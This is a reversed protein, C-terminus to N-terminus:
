IDSQVMQSLGNPLDILYRWSGDPQRRAVEISTGTTSVEVGDGSTGRFQWDGVLLATDGAQVVRRTTLRITPNMALYQVFTERIADAGQMPVGRQAMLFGDDSYLAALAELDRSNLAEAFLTHLDEPLEARIV